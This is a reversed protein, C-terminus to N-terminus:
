DHWVQGKMSIVGIMNRSRRIEATVKPAYSRALHVSTRSRCSGLNHFIEHESKM